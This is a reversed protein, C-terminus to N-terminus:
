PAASGLDRASVAALETPSIGFPRDSYRNLRPDGEWRRSREQRIRASIRKSRSATNPAMRGRSRVPSDAPRALSTKCRRDPIDSM